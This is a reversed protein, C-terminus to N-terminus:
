MRIRLKMAVGPKSQVEDNSRWAHRVVHLVARPDLVHVGLIDGGLMNNDVGDILNKDIGRRIKCRVAARSMLQRTANDPVYQTGGADGCGGADAGVQIQGLHSHIDHRLMDRRICFVYADGLQIFHAVAAHQPIVTRKCVEPAHSFAIYTLQILMAEIGHAIDSPARHLILFGQVAHEALICFQENIVGPSGYIARPESKPPCERAPYGRCIAMKRTKLSARILSYSVSLPPQKSKIAHWKESQEILETM